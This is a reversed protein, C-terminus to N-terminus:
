RIRKKFWTVHLISPMCDYMKPIVNCKKFTSLIFVNHSLDIASVNHKFPISRGNIIYLPDHLACVNIQIWLFCIIGYVFQYYSDYNSHMCEIVFAHSDSCYQHQVESLRIVDGKWNLLIQFAVWPNYNIINAHINWSLQVSIRVVRICWCSERM